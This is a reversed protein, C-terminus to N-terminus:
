AEEDEKRAANMGLMAVALSIGNKEAHAALAAASSETVEMEPKVAQCAMHSYAGPVGQFAIINSSDSM